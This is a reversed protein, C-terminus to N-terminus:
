DMLQMSKESMTAHWCTDHQLSPRTISFRSVVAGGGGKCEETKREVCIVGEKNGSINESSGINLLLLLIFQLRIHMIADFIQSVLWQVAFNNNQALPSAFFM